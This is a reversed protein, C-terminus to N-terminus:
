KKASPMAAPYRDFVDGGDLVRPDGSAILESTLRDDLDKLTGAYAPDDALNKLEFPDARLDYLERAPRRGFIREVFPKVTEKDRNALIFAKTQGADCDSFASYTDAAVAEFSPKGVPPDGSPWRDPKFNRIYHFDKTVITRMPFGVQEQSGDTRGARAHREMGTLTHDRAPDVQGSKESFLIPLLSRATM